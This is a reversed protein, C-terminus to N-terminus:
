IAVPPRISAFIERTLYENIETQLARIQDIPGSFFYLSEVSQDGRVAQFAIQKENKETYRIRMNNDRIHHFKYLCVSAAFEPTDYVVKMDSRWIRIKTAKKITDRCGWVVAFVTLVSMVIEFLHDMVFKFM